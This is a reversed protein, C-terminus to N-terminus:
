LHLTRVSRFRSRRANLFGNQELAWKGQRTKWVLLCHVAFLCWPIPQRLGQQARQTHRALSLSLHSHQLPAAYASAFCPSFMRWSKQMSVRTHAHKRQMPGAARTKRAVGEKSCVVDETMRFLSNGSLSTVIGNSSSGSTLVRHFTKSRHSSRVACMCVCECACACACVCVRVCVCVCVRVSETERERM